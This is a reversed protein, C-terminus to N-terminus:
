GDTAGGRLHKIKESLELPALVEVMTGWGLIWPLMEQWAAIQGTWILSGDELERIEQSPHWRTEKVRRAVATKFKLIVEQPDEETFWIGWADKLLDIPDFDEPIHYKDPLLVAHQIREVKLTRLRGDPDAGGIVHVTQGIAYPEVWYPAFVYERLTATRESHYELKIKRGRAIGATIVELVDIYTTDSFQVESDLVNASFNMMKSVPAATGEMAKSLRRLAAAAHPNKRDTRTALLRTALHIAMAEDLTFSVHIRKGERSLKLFGNEFLIGMREFTGDQGYRYITSRNVNLRRAIENVQLGHPYDLLLLRLYELREAKKVNDNIAM